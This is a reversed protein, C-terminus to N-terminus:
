QPSRPSSCVPRISLIIQTKAPRLHWKTPKTMLHNKQILLEILLYCNLATFIYCFISTLPTTQYSSTLSVASGLAFTRLTMYVCCVSLDAQLNCLAILKKTNKLYILIQHFGLVIKQRKQVAQLFLFFIPNKDVSQMGLSISPERTTLM